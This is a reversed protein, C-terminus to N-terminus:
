IFLYVENGLELAMLYILCKLLWLTWLFSSLFLEFLVGGIMRKRHVVWYEYGFGFYGNCRSRM